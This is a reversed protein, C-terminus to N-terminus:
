AYNNLCRNVSFQGIIPRFYMYFRKLQKINLM